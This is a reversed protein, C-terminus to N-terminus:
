KLVRKLTHNEITYLKDACAVTSARHSILFVYGTCYEKMVSLFAAENLSDLNSTPEDFIYCDAQKLLARTLELRQMEGASFISQGKGIVTDLGNPTSLITDKIRCKEAVLLIEEDSIDKGLTLNERITQQFLHPVQPIYAIKEQISRAHLTNTPHSNLLVEGATADYWRMLLKMLTSKGSGSQGVIGIITNPEFEESMCELVLAERHDYQFSVEKLQISALAEQLPAGEKPPENEELLSFVDQAAHIARKFGLPLRSLELYPAFSTSFVVLAITGDLFSLSGDQISWLLYIAMFLISWGIVLFTYISQVHQAKAVEKEKANVWKSKEELRSFQDSVKRYQVFDKMGKLSELFLTMYEKRVASQSALLPQLKHSFWYPLVIALLVYTFTAIGWIVLSLSLYFVSLLLTTLLATSVPPLTHAFFVELAEIDEGIMKLLAGAEQTDQKAPALQRLKHFVRQRFAALVRFAVYHGFYHEGYRFVGRLVGLAALVGLWMWSIAQHHLANWALGIIISPIVVTTLFGLVSFLVAIAVFPLLHRMSQILKQVINMTSFSHNGM